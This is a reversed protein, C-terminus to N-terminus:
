PTQREYAGIDCGGSHQKDPRLYGRQDTTLLNGNGDTCGNPNGADIAPSGSFLPITQTPGGHNSLWGMMPDTNNMDGPGIFNCTGDSSLNYGNSTMTGGCNGGWNKAVISNQITATGVIGGISGPTYNTNGSITSSSITLEAQNFVGAVVGHTGNGSITSNNITLTGGNSIAGGHDLSPWQSLTKNNSITSNNLTLTGLNHIGGGDVAIESEVVNQRITSNKIALTGGNHVGGGSAGGRDVWAYNGIITTNSMRLTGENDIGGGSAFADVEGGGEERLRYAYAGNGSITSNRIWLAGGNLVGGGSAVPVSIDRAIAFNGSITSDGIDLSGANNVGAGYQAKGNRITLNSLSVSAKSNSVTIVSGAQNGDVITTAADSGIIKLSKRITLSEVYTAPAVMIADNWHSLAIAHGITQCATQSSMCDNSDNGNVGDVYWINSAWAAPALALSLFMAPLWSFLHRQKM